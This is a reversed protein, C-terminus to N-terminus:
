SDIYAQLAAEVGETQIHQLSKTFADTFVESHGVVDGYVDNLETLWVSPETKARMALATLREWQPDQSPVPDGSETTGQCYRCWLASVLALGEVKGHTGVTLADHAVPVIFKPQRSAGDYTNRGITDGITPNAFRGQILTWYSKLNTGDPVAPVTPIIETRELKDLFPGILPHEVAEHVYQVDLLAAPYCLSAHGGNLIRIKMLEYPAVDPVFSINASAPLLHWDPRGQVFDDELIWQRFPECFIPAQDIWGYEKTVQQRMAPTTGPTIRDVMSNPFSVHGEIWEVLSESDAQARAVGMVVSKAVHGNHPINDCSLVTFAPLDHDRRYRLAKVLMGFITQAPQDPHAIDHQIQPHQVQFAGNDLFYGGETVTLSVIKIGTDHSLKDQLAQHTGGVPLFDVMSALITAKSSTGDREVLTQLWDQSELLQRKDADFSLLGAGCIGWHQNQERLTPDQFLDNMYAALHSRHFNGVGVHLIGASLQSPDYSPIVLSSEDQHDDSTKSLTSLWKRNLVPTETM